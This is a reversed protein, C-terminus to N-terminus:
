GEQGHEWTLATAVSSVDVTTTGALNFVELMEVIGM